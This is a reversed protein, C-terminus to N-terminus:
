QSDFESPDDKRSDNTGGHYILEQEKLQEAIKLVLFDGLERELEHPIYLEKPEKIIDYNFKLRMSDDGDPIFEVKDFSFIMGEYPEDVFEIAYILGNPGTKSLVKHARISKEVMIDEM